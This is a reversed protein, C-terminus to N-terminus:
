VQIGPDSVPDDTTTEGVAVVVYVTVPELPGPQVFVVVIVTVTFELGVTVAVAEEFVIQAPLVVVRM